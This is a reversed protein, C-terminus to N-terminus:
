SIIGIPCELAIHCHLHCLRAKEVLTPFELALASILRSFYFHGNQISVCNPCQLCTFELSANAELVVCVLSTKPLFAIEILHGLELVSWLLPKPWPHSTKLSSDSIKLAAGLQRKTSLVWTSPGWVKAFEQTNDEPFYWPTLTNKPTKTSERLRPGGQAGECRFPTTLFPTGLFLSASLNKAAAFRQLVAMQWGLFSKSSSEVACCIETTLNNSYLINYKYIM